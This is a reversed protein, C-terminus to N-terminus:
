IWAPARIQQFRAFNPQHRLAATELSSFTGSTATTKVFKFQRGKYSERRLRESFGCLRIDGMAIDSLGTRCLLQQLRRWSWFVHLHGSSQAAPLEDDFIM